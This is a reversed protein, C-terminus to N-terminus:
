AKPEEPKPEEQKPAEPAPHEQPAEVAPQQAPAPAAAPAVAGSPKAEGAQASLDTKKVRAVHIKKADIIKEEVFLNHITDSPKAGKSLWYQAREAKLSRRKTLPNVFGLIEVARGGKASKRKDIVIVNFFPQNKKGRRRLRIVLM